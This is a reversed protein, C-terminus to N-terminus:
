SPRKPWITVALKAMDAQRLAIVEPTWDSREGADQTWLLASKAFIPRKTSYPKNGIRDNVGKQLLAMNGLRHVFATRQETTFSEWEGSKPNKPLVHELNVKEEDENPVLEPEVQGSKAKELAVLYYRALNPRTVREVAFASRFEEDSPILDSLQNHLEDTTKVSGSRIKVAADCYQREYTGGGIGGVILGRVGWAVAARILKKLELEPFHQMGALLLIRIQELDLRLLTEVSDKTSTGLTSWFEHDTNLLAAYLRAANELEEAFEVAQSSTVVRDKISKYLERERTAGHKSSWYQRLFTVFTANESTMDLSALATVWKHRVEDLQAGARGFLYNKLLDAITLDAGRDNLTEFIFFADSETPVTVVIILVANEIFDVWERLRTGWEDGVSSALEAVFGNLSTQAGVILQHSRRTPDPTPESPTVVTGTFFLNDESNLWLQSVDEGSDLDPKSLYRGQIIDARKTDGRKAFENRIAALLMMTTALRQQGDVITLRPPTGEESLVVTGLFYEPDTARFSRSLDKEFDDVEDMKWAYSRQYIPVALPRDALVHGVADLDFGIRSEKAVLGGLRTPQTRINGVDIV